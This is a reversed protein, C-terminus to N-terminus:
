KSESDHSQNLEKCDGMYEQQFGGSDPYNQSNWLFPIEATTGALNHNGNQCYEFLFEFEVLIAMPIADLIV